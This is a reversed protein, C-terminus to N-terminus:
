TREVGKLMREMLRILKSLEADIKQRAEGTLTGYGRLRESTTEELQVINTSLLAAIARRPSQASPNLRIAAAMHHLEVRLQATQRRLEEVQEASLDREVQILLGSRRLLWHEIEECMQELSRLVM